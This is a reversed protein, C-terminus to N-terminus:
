NTSQLDAVLEKVKRLAIDDRGYNQYTATEIEKTFRVLKRNEDVLITNNHIAQKRLQKLEKNEQELEYKEKVLEGQKNVLTTNQKIFHNITELAITSAVFMGTIFGLLVGLVIELM